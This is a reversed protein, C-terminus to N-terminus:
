RQSADNLIASSADRGFGTPKRQAIGKSQLGQNRASQAASAATRRRLRTQAREQEFATQEAIRGKTAEAKEATRVRKQSQRQKLATNGRVGEALLTAALYAAMQPM